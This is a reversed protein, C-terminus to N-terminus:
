YLRNRHGSKRCVTRSMSNACRQFHWICMRSHIGPKIHNQNLYSDNIIRWVTSTGIEFIFNMANHNRNSCTSFFTIAICLWQFNRFIRFFQAIGNVLREFDVDSSTWLTCWIFPICRHSNNGKTKNKKKRKM